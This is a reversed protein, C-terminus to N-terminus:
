FTGSLIRNNGVMIDIKTGRSVAPVSGGRQNTLELKVRGLTIPRSGILSGNVYITATQGELGRLNEGEVSFNTRSSSQDFKAKGKVMAPVNPGAVLRAQLLVRPGKAFVDTASALVGAVVLFLVTRRLIGM